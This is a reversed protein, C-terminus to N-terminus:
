DYMEAEWWDRQKESKLSEKLNHKVNEFMFVILAACGFIALFIVVLVAIMILFKM